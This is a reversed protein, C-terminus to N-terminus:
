SVERLIVVCTKLIKPAKLKDELGDAQILNTDFLIVTQILYLSRRYSVSIINDFLCSKPTFYMYDKENPNSECLELISYISITKSFKYVMAHMSIRCLYM